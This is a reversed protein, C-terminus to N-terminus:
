CDLLANRVRYLATAVAGATLGCNDAIQQVSGGPRYRELLRERQHPPLKQLCEDLAQSREDIDALRVHARGALQELLDEDFVHRDCRRRRRDALVEFYAVKCAWAGFSTGLQYDAAKRWLVVNTDQLVDRAREADPIM